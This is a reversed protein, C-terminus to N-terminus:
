YIYKPVSKDSNGGLVQIRDHLASLHLLKPAEQDHVWLVATHQGAAAVSVGEQAPM